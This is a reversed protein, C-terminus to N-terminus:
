AAAPPIPPLTTPYNAANYGAQAKIYASLGDQSASIYEDLKALMDAPLNKYQKLANLTGILLGFAAYVDQTPAASNQLNSILPNLGSELATALATTGGPITGTGQLVGLVLNALLEIFPLYATIM